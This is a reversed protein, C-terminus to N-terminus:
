YQKLIRETVHKTHGNKNVVIRDLSKIRGLNSVQYCGEYGAIDKWVESNLNLTKTNM